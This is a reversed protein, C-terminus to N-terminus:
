RAAEGIAGAWARQTTRARRGASNGKAYPCRSRHRARETDEGIASTVCAAASLAMGAPTLARARRTARVCARMRGSCDCRRMGRGWHIAACLRAMCGRAYAVVAAVLLEARTIGGLRVPWLVRMGDCVRTEPHLEREHVAEALASGACDERGWRMVDCMGGCGCARRRVFRCGRWDRHGRGSARRKHRRRLRTERRREGNAGGGAEVGRPGGSLARDVMRLFGHRRRRQRRHNIEGREVDGGELRFTAPVFCPEELVIPPYSISSVLLAPNYTQGKPICSRRSPSYSTHSCITVTSTLTVNSDWLRPTVTSSTLPENGRASLVPVTVNLLLAERPLFLFGYTACFLCQLASRPRWSRSRLPLRIFLWFAAQRPAPPSATSLVDQPRSSMLEAHVLGLPTSSQDVALAQRGQSWVSLRRPHKGGGVRTSVTVTSRLTPAAHWFSRAPTLPVLQRTARLNQYSFPLPGTPLANAFKFCPRLPHLFAPPGCGPRSVAESLKLLKVIHYEDGHMVSLYLYRSSGDASVTLFPAYSLGFPGFGAARRTNCLRVAKKIEEADEGRKLRCFQCKLGIIALRRETQRGKGSNKKSCHAAMGSRECDQTKRWTIHPVHHM